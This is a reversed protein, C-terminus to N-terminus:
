RGGRHLMGKATRRVRRIYGTEADAADLTRNETELAMARQFEAIYQIDARTAERTSINTMCKLKHYPCWVQFPGELPSVEYGM